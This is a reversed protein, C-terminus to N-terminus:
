AAVQVLRCRCFPHSPFGPVSDPPYVGAGYGSNARAKADCEDRGRHTPSVVWRVLGGRTGAEDIVALGHARVAETHILRRLAGRGDGPGAEGTLLAEVTAALQGAPTGARLGTAITSDVRRRLIAADRWLRTSLTRGAPDVWGRARDWGAAKDVTAPQVLGHAAKVVARLLAGLPTLPAGVPTWLTGPGRGALLRLGALTAASLRALTAGARLLDRLASALPALLGRLHADAARILRALADIPPPIASM